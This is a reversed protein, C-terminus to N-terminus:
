FKCCFCCSKIDTEIGYCAFELTPAEFEFRTNASWILEYKQKFGDNFYLSTFFIQGYGAKRSVIMNRAKSNCRLVLIM